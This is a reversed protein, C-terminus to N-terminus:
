LEAINIDREFLKKNNIWDEFVIYKTNSDAVWLKKAGNTSDIKKIFPYLLLYEKRDFTYKNDSSKVVPILACLQTHGDVYGLEWPIWKSLDANQSIALLLTKCSHLRKRILRASEKTVNTRDLDSDVIWDVYVSYGMNTLEYYLGYVAEKDLFSHSLFIDFSTRNRSENFMRTSENLPQNKSLNKLYSEEYLPM